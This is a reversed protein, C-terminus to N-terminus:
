RVAVPVDEELYHDFDWDLKGLQKQFDGLGTSFREQFDAFSTVARQGVEMINLPTQSLGTVETAHNQGAELLGAFSSFCSRLCICLFNCLNM